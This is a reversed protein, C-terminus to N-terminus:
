NPAHEYIYVWSYIIQKKGMGVWNPLHLPLGTTIIMFSNPALSSGQFM